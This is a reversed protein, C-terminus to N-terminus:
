RFPRNPLNAYNAIRTDPAASTVAAGTAGTTLLFLDSPELSPEIAALLTDSLGTFPPSTM